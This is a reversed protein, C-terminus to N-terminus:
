NWGHLSVNTSMAANSLTSTLRSAPISNVGGVLSWPYDSRLAANTGGGVAQLPFVPTAVWGLLAVAAAGLPMLWAALGLAPGNATVASPEAARAAAGFLRERIDAAPPRFAQSSLHM